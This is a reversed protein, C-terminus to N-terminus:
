KIESAPRTVYSVHLGDDISAPNYIAKLTVDCQIGHGIGSFLFSKQNYPLIVNRHYHYDSKCIYKCQLFLRFHDAPFDPSKWVVEISNDLHEFVGFQTMM